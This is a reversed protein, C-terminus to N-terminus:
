SAVVPVAHSNEGKVREKGEEEEEKTLEEIKTAASLSFVKILISGSLLSKKIATSQRHVRWRDGEFFALALALLPWKLGGYNMLLATSRCATNAVRLPFNAAGHRPLM